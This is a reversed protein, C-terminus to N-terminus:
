SEKESASSKEKRMSNPPIYVMDDDSSKKRSGGLSCDCFNILQCADFNCRSPACDALFHNCSPVDCSPVDCGGVDCFGAQAHPRAQKAKPITYRRHAIACRQLRQDLIRLGRALGFRRIARYGLSSCSACGTHVRYACSFGKYPSLYRKYLAISQLAASQLFKSPM